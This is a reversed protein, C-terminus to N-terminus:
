VSEALEGIAPATGVASQISPHGDSKLCEVLGRKMRQVIGPGEYVLATYLQLLSAGACIMEYADAASSIGGVGIIPYEPGARSRIYRVMHVARQFIPPGSLGGHGIVELSKPDTVLGRRDKATNTVVFGSVQRRIATELIAETQSDYVVKPTDPPSLKVLIPVRDEVQDVLVSLLSDLYEATEFNKGGRTNPCSINITVYDAYPLLRATCRRYDEIASSCGDVRAISVGVPMKRDSIRSLRRAVLSSGKSPLGLRNIIAQDEQLRFLRPKANGPSASMTVSGVEVHGLGLREWFSVLLANKDCGAALGIPNPFKLGWIQQHLLPDDFRYAKQIVGPVTRNAFWAAGFSLRHALEPDLGLFFRRLTADM